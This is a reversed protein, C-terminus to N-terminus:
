CPGMKKKNIIDEADYYSEVKMQLDLYVKGNQSTEFESEAPIYFDKFAMIKYKKNPETNFNFDGDKGVLQEDLLKGNEDYLKVTSGPLLEM